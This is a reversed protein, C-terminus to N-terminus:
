SFRTENHTSMFGFLESVPYKTKILVFNTQSPIYSLGLSFLNEYFYIKEQSVLQKSRSLYQQDKIAEMVALQAFINTNFPLKKTLITQILSPEGLLCGLRIGALGYAKSFTRLIILNDFRKLLAISDPYDKADAFHHYAEDLVVFANHKYAATLLQIIDTGTTHCGFPNSPNSIFILKCGTNLHKILNKARNDEILYKVEMYSKSYMQMVHKYIFYENELFIAKEQKSLLLNSLISILEDSGNGCVIQSVSIKFHNALATRLKNQHPDPYRHLASFTTSLKEISLQPAGLPNENTNLRIWEDHNQLQRTHLRESHM